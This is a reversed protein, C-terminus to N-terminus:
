FVTYAVHVHVNVGASSTVCLANSAITSYIQGLGSGEAVGNQATLEWGPSIATTGTGCNTATGYKLTVTSTGGGQIAVNCVHISKGSTLAVIQTTTATTMDLFASSDCGVLGTLNGSSNVGLYTAGAPAASGTAGHGWNAIASNDNAVNFRQSGTGSSGNNMLPTVGNIQSENVSQNAPLAVSDPTVLLKNTLQPQDTALVFRPTGADKNGSNVSTTSSVGSTPTATAHGTVTITGASYASIRARVYQLGAVSLSWVTATTGQNTVGTSITATGLQSANLAVFNGNSGTTSDESGEFNVTTGGSCAVSCNTTLTAVSLGSVLLATGNGNATAGSQLTGSTVSWISGVGSAQGFAATSIAFLLIIRKM